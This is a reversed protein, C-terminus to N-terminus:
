VSNWPESYADMNGQAYLEQLPKILHNYTGNNIKYLAQLIPIEEDPTSDTVTKFVSVLPYKTIEEAM